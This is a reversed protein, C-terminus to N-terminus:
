GKKFFNNLFSKKKDNIKNTANTNIHPNWMDLMLKGFYSEENILVKHFEDCTVEIDDARIVTKRWEEPIQDVSYYIGALAGVIAATTDTDKGLNVACLVCDRYSDTTYFCWLAARFSDLVFGGSPLEEISDRNISLLSDINRAFLIRDDIEDNGLNNCYKQVNDFGLDLGQQLIVAKSNIPTADNDIQKAVYALVTSYIICIERCLLSDHTIGSAIAINNIADIDGNLLGDAYYMAFPLIRMLSGNGSSSDDKPGSTKIDKDTKYKGLANSVTIGRDFADGDTTFFGKENWLIFYEMIKDFDVKKEDVISSMAALTMSTDDSWTGAPKGYTGFGRMDIVPNKDCENRNDHEVPVGLADGIAKGLMGSTIVNKSPVYMSM